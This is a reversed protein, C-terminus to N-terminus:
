FHHCNVLNRVEMRKKHNAAKQKTSKSVHYQNSLQYVYIRTHLSDIFSVPDLMIMGLFQILLKTTEPTEM